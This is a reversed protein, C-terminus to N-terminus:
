LRARSEAGYVLRDTFSKDWIILTGVGDIQHKSRWERIGFLLSFMFLIVNWVLSAFIRLTISVPENPSIAVAIDSPTEGPSACLRSCTFGTKSCTIGFASPFLM